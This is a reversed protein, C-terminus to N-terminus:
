ERKGCGETPAGTEKNQEAINHFKEGKRGTGAVKSIESGAVEGGM